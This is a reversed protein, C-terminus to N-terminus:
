PVYDSSGRDSPALAAGVEFTLADEMNTMVSQISIFPVLNAHGIIACSECYFKM